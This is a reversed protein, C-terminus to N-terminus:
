EMLAAREVDKVCTCLCFELCTVKMTKLSLNETRKKKKKIAFNSWFKWLEKFCYYRDAVVM